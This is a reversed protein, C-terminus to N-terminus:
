FQLLIPIRKKSFGAGARAIILVAPDEPGEQGLAEGKRLFHEVGVRSPNM